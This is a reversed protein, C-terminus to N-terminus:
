KSSGVTAAIKKIEDESHGVKVYLEAACVHKAGPVNVHYTIINQTTPKGAYLWRESSNEIIKEAGLERKEADTMPAGSRPYGAILVGILNDSSAFQGPISSLSWSPPISMQCSGTKNDKVTKWGSQANLATSVFLVLLILAFKM